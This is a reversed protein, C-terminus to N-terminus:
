NIQLYYEIIMNSIEQAELEEFLKPGEYWYLSLQTQYHLKEPLRDSNIIIRLMEPYLQKEPLDIDSKVFYVLIFCLKELFAENKSLNGLRTSQLISGAIIESSLPPLEIEYPTDEIIEAFLHFLTTWAICMVPVDYNQTENQRRVFLGLAHLASFGYKSALSLIIENILHSPPNAMLSLAYYVEETWKGSEKLAFDILDRFRPPQFTPIKFIIYKILRILPFLVLGHLEFELILETLDAIISVTSPDLEWLENRQVHAKIIDGFLLLYERLEDFRINRKAINQRLKKRDGFKSQYSQQLSQLVKKIDKLNALEERCRHLAKRNTKARVLVKKFERLLTKPSKDERPRIRSQNKSLLESLKERTLKRCTQIGSVLALDDPIFQVYDEEREEGTLTGIRIFGLNDGRKGDIEIAGSENVIVNLSFDIQETPLPDLTVMYDRIPVYSEEGIPKKGLSFIKSQGSGLKGSLANKRIIPLKEDRGIFEKWVLKQKSRDFVKVGYTQGITNKSLSNFKEFYREVILGRAVARKPDKQLRVPTMGLIDHFIDEILPFEAMGGALLFVDFLRGDFLRENVDIQLYADIIPRFITTKLRQNRNYEEIYDHHFGFGSPPLLPRITNYYKDVDWESEKPEHTGPLYIPIRVNTSPDQMRMKQSIVLKIQEAQELFCPKYHEYEEESLDPYLEARLKEAVLKDFDDGACQTYEGIAIRKVIPYTKPDEKDFEVDERLTAEIIAVDLTGGGMDVVLFRRKGFSWKKLFTEQSDNKIEDHLYWLAIAEPEEVLSITSAEAFVKKVAKLTDAKQETNFRSPVGVIINGHLYEPSSSQVSQKVTDLIIAAIESPTYSMGNIKYIKDIGIHSKSSRVVREPEYTIFDKAGEGVFYNVDFKEQKLFYVVSPLCEDITTRFGQRLQRIGVPKIDLLREDRIKSLCAYTNTTGLDIGLLYTENSPSKRGIM